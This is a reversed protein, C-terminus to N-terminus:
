ANLGSAFYNGTELLGVLEINLPDVRGSKNSKLMGTDTGVLKM